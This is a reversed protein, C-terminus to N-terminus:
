KRRDDQNEINKWVYPCMNKKKPRNVTKNKKGM